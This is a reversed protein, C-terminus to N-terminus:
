VKGNSVFTVTVKTVDSVLINETYSQLYCNFTQTDSVPTAGKYGKYEITYMKASTSNKWLDQQLESNSDFIYSITFTMNYSNPKNEQLRKGNKVVSDFRHEIYYITNLISNKFAIIGSNLDTSDDNYTIPSSGGSDVIIKLYM